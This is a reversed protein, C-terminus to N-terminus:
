EAARATIAASITPTTGGTIAKVTVWFLNTSTDDFVQVVPGYFDGSAITISEGLRYINDGHKGWVDFTM